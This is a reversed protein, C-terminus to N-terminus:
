ELALNKADIAVAVGRMGHFFDTIAIFDAHAAVHYGTFAPIGKELKRGFSFPTQGKKIRFSVVLSLLDGM